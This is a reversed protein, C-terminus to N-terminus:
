GNRGIWSTIERDSENVAAGHKAPPVVAILEVACNQSAYSDAMIVGVISILCIALHRDIRM